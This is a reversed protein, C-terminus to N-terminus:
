GGTDTKQNDKFSLNHPTEAESNGETENEGNAAAIDRGRATIGSPPEHLM